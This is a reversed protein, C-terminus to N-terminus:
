MEAGEVSGMLMPRGLQASRLGMWLGCSAPHLAACSSSPLCTSPLGSDRWFRKGLWKPRPANGEPRPELWNDSQGWQSDRGCLGAAEPYSTVHHIQFVLTQGPGPARSPTPGYSPGLVTEYHCGCDARTHHGGCQSLLCLMCMPHLPPPHRGRGMGPSGSYGTDCSMPMPPGAGQGGRLGGSLATGRGM